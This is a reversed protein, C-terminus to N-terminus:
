KEKKNKEFIKFISTFSNWLTNEEDIKEEDKIKENIKDFDFNYRNVIDKIQYINGENIKFGKYLKLIYESIEEENHFEPTLPEKSPSLLSNPIFIKKNEIKIENTSCGELMFFLISVTLIKKM